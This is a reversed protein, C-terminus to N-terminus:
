HYRLLKSTYSETPVMSTHRPNLEYQCKRYNNGLHNQSLQYNSLM